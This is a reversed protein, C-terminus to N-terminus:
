RRFSHLPRNKDGQYFKCMRHNALRPYGKHNGKVHVYEKEKEGGMARLVNYPIPFILNQFHKKGRENNVNSM